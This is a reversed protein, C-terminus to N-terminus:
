RSEHGLLEHLTIATLIRHTRDTLESPSAHRVRQRAASDLPGFKYAILQLLTEARGEARGAMRGETRLAEATTMYAEQIAPGLQEALRYLESPPKDSTAHVYM